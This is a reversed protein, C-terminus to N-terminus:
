GGELRGRPWEGAQENVKVRVVRVRRAADAARVREAEARTAPSLATPHRSAIRHIMAVAWLRHKPDASRLFARLRREMVAYTARLREREAQRTIHGWWVPYEIEWGRCTQPRCGLVWAVVEWRHGAARLRAARAVRGVMRRSSPVGFM